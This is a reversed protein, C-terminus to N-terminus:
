FFKIDGFETRNMKSLEGLVAVPRALFHEFNGHPEFNSAKVTGLCNHM